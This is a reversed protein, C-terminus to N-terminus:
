YNVEPSSQGDGRTDGDAISADNVMGRAKEREGEFTSGLTAYELSGIRMFANTQISIGSEVKCIWNKTSWSDDAILSPEGTVLEAVFYLSADQLIVVECESISSTVEDKVCAHLGVRM